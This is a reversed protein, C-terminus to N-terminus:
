VVDNKKEKEEGKDQTIAIMTTMRTMTTVTTGEGQGTMDGATTLREEEEM